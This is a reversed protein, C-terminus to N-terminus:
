SFANRCVVRFFFFFVFPSQLPSRRNIVPTRMFKELKPCAAVFSQTLRSQAPRRVNNVSKRTWRRLFVFIKEERVQQARFIRSFLINECECSAFYAEPGPVCICFRFRGLRRLKQSKRMRLSSNVERRIFKKLQDNYISNRFVSIHINIYKTIDQIMELLIAAGRHLM